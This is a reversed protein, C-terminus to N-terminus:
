QYITVTIGIEPTEVITEKSEREGTRVLMKLKLPCVSEKQNLLAKRCVIITITQSMTYM